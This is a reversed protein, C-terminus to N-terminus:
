RNAKRSKRAMQRRNKRRNYEKDSVTYDVPNLLRAFGGQKLLAHQLAFGAQTSIEFSKKQEESPQDIVDPNVINFFKEHKGLETYNAM